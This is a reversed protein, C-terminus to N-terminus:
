QIGGHVREPTLHIGDDKYWVRKSEATIPGSEESQNILSGMRANPDSRSASFHCGGLALALGAFATMLLLRKMM